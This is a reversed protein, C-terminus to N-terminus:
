CPSKNGVEEGVVRPSFGHRIGILNGLEWAILDDCRRLWTDHQDLYAAVVEIRDAWSAGATVGQPVAFPEPHLIIRFTSPKVGDIVAGSIAKGNPLRRGACAAWAAIRAAYAADVWGCLEAPLRLAWERFQEILWPAVGAETMRQCTKRVRKPGYDALGQTHVAIGLPTITPPFDPLYLGLRLKM